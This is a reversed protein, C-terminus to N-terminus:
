NELHWERLNHRCISVPKHTYPTCSLVVELVDLYVNRPIREHHKSTYGARTFRRQREARQVGFGLPAIEFRHRRIGATQEM